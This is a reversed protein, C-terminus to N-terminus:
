KLLVSNNIWIITKKKTFNKETLFPVTGKSQRDFAISLDQARYGASHFREKKGLFKKEFYINFM